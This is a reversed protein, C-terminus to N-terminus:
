EISNAQMYGINIVLLKLFNFHEYVAYFSYLFRINLNFIMDLMHRSLNSISSNIFTLMIKLYSLIFKEQSQIIM